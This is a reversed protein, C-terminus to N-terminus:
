GPEGLLRLLGDLGVEHWPRHAPALDRTREPSVLVAQAQPYAKLFSRLGPQERDQEGWKCEIAIPAKGKAALVLDVEDGQKTRWYRLALDPRRSNIENLVYHEWLLGLDEARAERYGQQRWVFGSDFAYVKPAAVIETNPRSAFPRLLQVLHTAELVAIYNMVTPRSLECERALKSADLIGGSRALLLELLRMFGSRKEVRFLEQVDRAWYAQMWEQYDADPAEELYFGPLGGRLLRTRLDGGFVKLDASNMPTLWLNRKRGALSDRFKRTAELTSSGTAIVQLGPFHDVAVKLWQAPDPLRHVEDLVLRKAKIARLFSEPDELDRRVSPLECDLYLADPVGQVLRTKGVRRVGTLWLLRRQASFAQNIQEQWYPRQQM